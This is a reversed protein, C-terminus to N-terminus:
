ALICADRLRMKGGKFRGDAYTVNTCFIVKDFFNHSTEGSGHLRLQAEIRTLVTELFSPGSRGHTCNFILIRTAYKRSFILMGEPGSLGLPTRVRDARNEVRSLSECVM